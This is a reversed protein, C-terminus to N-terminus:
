RGGKNITDIKQVEDFDRRLGPVRKCAEEVLKSILRKLDEGEVVLSDDKEVYRPAGLEKLLEKCYPAFYIGTAKVNLRGFLVEEKKNLQRPRYKSKGILIPKDEHLRLGVAVLGLEWPELATFLVEGEFVSGHRFAEVLENHDLKMEVVEFEKEKPNLNGFYVRSSLGATGFINCIVCVKDNSTADCPPYRNEQVVPQWLQYHRWGHQGRTPWERPPPSARIFCSDTIGSVEKILLELRSRVAGKLSSGPIVPRRGYEVNGM